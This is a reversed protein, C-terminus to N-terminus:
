TEQQKQTIWLNISTNAETILFPVRHCSPVGIEMDSFLPPWLVHHKSLVKDFM